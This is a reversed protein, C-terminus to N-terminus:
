SRIVKNGSCMSYMVVDFVVNEKVLIVTGVISFSMLLM